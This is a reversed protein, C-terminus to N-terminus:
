GALHRRSRPLGGGGHSVLYAPGTLQVPLVPTRAKAIGVLSGAPCTAPNVEFTAAPCAQRLTTLRSPLQKPLSVAVKAINAQGLASAVKVDLSAGGTKSAAGQTYVRFKPKFPLSACDAAQFRSSVATAIGQASAIKGHMVLPACNTPNFMFGARDVTVSVARIQLPIGKVITPLPDSVITIQATHPDVSVSARVLVNGLDFPGAKAPM